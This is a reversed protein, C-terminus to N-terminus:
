MYKPWDSAMMLPEFHKLMSQVDVLIIFLVVPVYKLWRHLLNGIIKYDFGNPVM